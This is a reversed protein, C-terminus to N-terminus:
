GAIEKVLADTLGIEAALDQWNPNNKTILHNKWERKWNKLQKEREIAAIM